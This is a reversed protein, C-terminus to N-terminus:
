RVYEMMCNFEKRLDQFQKGRWNFPSNVFKELGLLLNQRTLLYKIYLDFSFNREIYPASSYTTCGVYLAMQCSVYTNLVRQSMRPKSFNAFLGKLEM